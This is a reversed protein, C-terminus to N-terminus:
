DYDFNSGVEKLEAVALYSTRFSGRKMSVKMSGLGASPTRAMSGTPHQIRVVPDNSCDFRFKGRKM